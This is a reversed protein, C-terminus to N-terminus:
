VWRVGGPIECDRGTISINQRTSSLGTIKGGEDAGVRDDAGLAHLLLSSARLQMIRQWFVYYAQPLLLRDHSFSHM